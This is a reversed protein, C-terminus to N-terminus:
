RLREVLQHQFTGHWLQMLLAPIQLLREKIITDLFLKLVLELKALYTPLHYIRFQVIENSQECNPCMNSYCM